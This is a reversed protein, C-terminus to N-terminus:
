LYPYGPYYYKLVQLLYEVKYPLKLMWRAFLLITHDLYCSKRFPDVVVRAKEQKMWEIVLGGPGM